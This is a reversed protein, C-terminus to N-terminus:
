SIPVRETVALAGERITWISTAVHEAFTRDHSIAFVTGPFERLAQEFSEVSALDLHNTPEDLVLVNARTGIMRAIQLKRRQGVSLNGIRQLVEDERFLGYKHLNARHEGEVGPLDHSYAELVTENPDLSEQEQDLYGIRAGNALRVFGSDPQELGLIIKLLTTKGVGNPGQLVIREGATITATVDAFLIRGDYQKGIEHLRIVDRSILEDPRFDPNIAWGAMPRELKNDLLKELRKKANKIDAGKQVEARGGFFGKAFKDNDPMPRGKGSNHHIQKIKRQLEKIETQQAEFAEMQQERLREREQAYADYNGYFVTFKHDAPSLEVIQTVVRNLFRRDHSIVLVAGAYETLYQELWELATIDLHNTPEDLILLLPSLLLLSALVMRTKEGGSLTRATRSRDVHSLELGALVQEMRFDAEYGGRRTFEEQLTGYREVLRNLADPATEASMQHELTEMEARLRDLAGMAREFFQQVTLDDDFSAEQPLYGIELGPVPMVRGEDPALTGMIISAFTTKGTGNEGVLGIRDKRNIVLSVQDLVVKAGYTKSINHLELVQEAM